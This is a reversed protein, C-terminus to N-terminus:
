RELTGDPAFHAANAGFDERSLGAVLRVSADTPDLEPLGAGHLSVPILRASEWGGDPRLV